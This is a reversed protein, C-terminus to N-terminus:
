EGENYSKIIGVHPGEGAQSLKNDAEQKLMGTKGLLQGQPNGTRNNLKVLFTVEEGVEVNHTTIQQTDVYVDRGFISKTEACEIFGYGKELNYSKVVGAYEKNPNHPKGGGYGGKGMGKGGQFGGMGGGGMGGMMGGGMM